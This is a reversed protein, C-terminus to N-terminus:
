FLQLGRGVDLEWGRLQDADLQGRGRGSRGRKRRRLCVRHSWFFL